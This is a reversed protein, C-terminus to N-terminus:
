DSDSDDDDLDDDDDDDDSDDNKSKVPSEEEADDDDDDDDDSDQSPKEGKYASMEKKARVKDQKAMEEYKSKEKPSLAKFMQGIKKGLEGFTISPNEAKVKARMANSFFFFSTTARKPANPDKTPNKKGSAKTPSSSPPPVYDKMADKYREKDATAMTEYKVKDNPSLAKWEAGLL